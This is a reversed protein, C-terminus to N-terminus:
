HKKRRLLRIFVFILLMIGMGYWFYRHTVMLKIYLPVLRFNFKKEPRKYDKWYEMDYAPLPLVQQGTLSVTEFHVSDDRVKVNLIADRPTNRIASLIYTIRGDTHYFFSAPAMGMSGSFWWIRYNEKYKEVLPLIESVFNDGFVSRTNDKFFGAFEPNTEAWVPRHSAIFVNAYGEKAAKELNERFFDLQEGTIKSDDQEADLTIFLNKGIAFSFWTQGIQERYFDGSLDHNGVANFMPINLKSFLARQYKPYDNRVDGFVDGTFWIFAPHLRKLLDLNALFTSAPYGSRNTGDGYIHGTVVFSFDAPNVTSDAGLGNLSTQSRGATQLLLLILFINGTKRVDFGYKMAEAGSNKGTSAGM